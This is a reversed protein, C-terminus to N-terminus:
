KILMIKRIRDFKDTKLRMLYIGSPLLSGNFTVHHNGAHMTKHVPNAVQEGRLNYIKLDVFCKKELGFCITTYPNFPNPYNQTLYCKKVKWLNDDAVENESIKLFASLASTNSDADTATATINTFIPATGLDLSFNGSEDATTSGLYAKAQNDNDNFIEIIEGAGARGTVRVASASLLIPVPINNNTTTNTEMSIATFENGTLKNRSLRNRSASDQLGIAYMSCFGIMNNRIINNHSSKTLWVGSGLNGIQQWTELVNFFNNHVTIHTDAYLSLGNQNGGITNQAVEISDSSWIVIAGFNSSFSRDMSRNIGLTNGKIYINKCNDIYLESQGSGLCLNGGFTSNKGITINSSYLMYVSYAAKGLSDTGSPDTNFFCDSICGNNVTNLAIGARYKSFVLNYINFSEIFQAAFCTFQDKVPGEFIIEPGSPNCDEGIFVNQSNGDITLSDTTINFKSTTKILWTSPDASFGPDSRPINFKIIKANATLHATKLAETISGTGTENTTTVILTTEGKGTPANIPSSFTSTNGPGDTVTATVFPGTLEKTWTFNGTDDAYLSVEYQEGQDANDSFLEVKANAKTLGNIYNGSVSLAPPQLNDNAGTSILIGRNTNNYIKNQSITNRDSGVDWVTIGTSGNFAISNQKIINDSAHGAVFIGNSGNGGRQATPTLGINNGIIINKRCNQGSLVLGHITNGSLINAENQALTGIQNDGSDNLYIGFQNPVSQEGSGDTGLYCGDILNNQANKGSIAIGSGPIGNVILQSIHNYSSTIYLGNRISDAATLVIEPGNVNTDEGFNKRQSSGDIYLSDSNIRIIDTLIKITWIGAAANWGPDEQPIDFMITDPGIGQNALNVAERLSWLGADRTNAVRIKSSPVYDPVKATWLDNKWTSAYLKSGDGNLTISTVKKGELGLSAFARGKNESLWAGKVGYNQSDGAFIRGPHAPDLHFNMLYQSNLLKWTSGSNSSRYLDGGEKLFYVYNNITDVAMQQAHWNIFSIDTWSVGGDNSKFLPPNYPQPHNALEVPVYLINNKIDEVIDWCIIYPTAIGFPLTTFHRGGDTSKYIGPSSNTETQPALYISGDIQSILISRIYEPCTYIINWSIGKDTSKYLKNWVAAYVIDSNDPDIQLGEVDLGRGSIAQNWNAGSDRTIYLGKEISIVYQVADDLPDIIIKDINNLTPISSNQHWIWSELQGQHSTGSRNITSQGNVAMQFAFFCFVIKILICKDQKM